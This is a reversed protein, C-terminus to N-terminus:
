GFEFEPLRMHPHDELYPVELIGRRRRDAAGADQVDGRIIARLPDAENLRPEFFPLLRLVDLVGELHRMFSLM